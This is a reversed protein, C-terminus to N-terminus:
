LIYATPVAQESIFVIIYRYCFNRTNNRVHNIFNSDQLWVCAAYDEPSCNKKIRM